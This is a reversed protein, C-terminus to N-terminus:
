GIFMQTWYSGDAVYGVGIQTYSASLINARHGESNMWANVVAEPTTQGMAINEGASRYSIGFTTMMEFPSGYTPSTHSFYNNDHMDQSKLRAVYSLETNLALESLGYQARIENVLSVVELEYESVTYDQEESESDTEADAATDTDPSDAATDSDAFEPESDATVDEAESDTATDTSNEESDAPIDESDTSAEKDYDSKEEDDAIDTDTCSLSGSNATLELECNFLTILEELSSVGFSECLKDFDACDTGNISTVTFASVSDPCTIYDRITDANPMNTIVRVTPATSIYDCDTDSASAVTAGMMSLVAACLVAPVRLLAKKM